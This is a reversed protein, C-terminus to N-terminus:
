RLYLPSEAVYVTVGKAEPIISALPFSPTGLTDFKWTVSKGGVNIKVTDFRTVNLYRTTSDINVTRTAADTAVYGYPAQQNATPQGKSAQVQELWRISASDYEAMAATAGTLSLAAFLALKTFNTKM